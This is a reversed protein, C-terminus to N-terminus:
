FSSATKESAGISLAEHLARRFDEVLFPTRLIPIGARELPTYDDHWGTVLLIPKRYQVKLRVLLDQGAGQWYPLILGFPESEVLSLLEAEHQSRFGLDDGFRFFSLDYQEGLEWKLIMELADGLVSRHGILVTFSPKSGPANKDIENM